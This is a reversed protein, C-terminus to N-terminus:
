RQKSHRETEQRGKFEHQGEGGGVGKKIKKKATIEM